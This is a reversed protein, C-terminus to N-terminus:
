VKSEPDFEATAVHRIVKPVLTRPKISVPDYIVRQQTADYRMEVEGILPFDKRFPHGSFGYDTLIRRLDPHNDFLIGYLDFAEREYWNASPWIDTVTNIRPPDGPLMVKLRLRQNHPTSLLNYVVGFRALPKPTKAAPETFGDKLVGRSFGEATASDTAWESVGYKLYDIGCLDLLQDFQFETEDRLAQACTLLDHAEIALTIQDFQIKCKITAAFRHQLAQMIQETNAM